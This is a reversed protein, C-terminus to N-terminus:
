KQKSFHKIKLLPAKFDFVIKRWENEKLRIRTQETLQNKQDVVQILIDQNSQVECSKQTRCELNPIKDLFVLFQPPVEPMQNVQINLYAPHLYHLKFEVKSSQDPRFHLKETQFNKLKVEVQYKKDKQSEDWEFEMQSPTFKLPITPKSDIWIEAGSPKSNIWIPIKKLTKSPQISVCNNKLRCVITDTFSQGRLKTIMIKDTIFVISVFVLSYLLYQINWLRSESKKSSVNDNQTNMNQETPLVRVDEAKYEQTLKIALDLKMKESEKKEALFEYVINEFNSKSFKQIQKQLDSELEDISKYRFMINKSFCRLFIEYVLPYKQFLINNKFNKEFFLEMNQLSDLPRAQDRFIFDLAILAIVFIDCQSHINKKNFHILDENQYIDQVACYSCENLKLKKFDQLNSISKNIFFNPNEVKLNLKSDFYINSPSLNLHSIFLANGFENREIIEYYKKLFSLLSLLKKLFFQMRQENLNDSSEGDLNELYIKSKILEGLYCKSDLESLTLLYEDEIWFFQNLIQHDNQELFPLICKLAQLQAASLPYKKLVFTHSSNIQTQVWFENDSIKNIINFQPRSM